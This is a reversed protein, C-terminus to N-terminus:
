WAKCIGVSSNLKSNHIYTMQPLQQEKDMHVSCTVSTVLSPSDTVLTCTHTHLKNSITYQYLEGDHLILRSWIHKALNIVQSSFFHENLLHVLQLFWFWALEVFNYVFLFCNSFSIMLTNGRTPLNYESMYNHISSPHLISNSM